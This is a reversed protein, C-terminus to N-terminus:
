RFWTPEDVNGKGLAPRTLRVHCPHHVDRNKRNGTIALSIASSRGVQGADGEGGVNASALIDSSVIAQNAEIRHQGTLHDSDPTPPPLVDPRNAQTSSVQASARSKWHPGPLSTGISGVKKGGRNAMRNAAKPLVAVALLQNEYRCLANRALLVVADNFSLLALWSSVAAM